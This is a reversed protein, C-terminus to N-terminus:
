EDRLRAIDYPRFSTNGPMRTVQDSIAEAAEATLVWGYSRPLNSYTGPGDVVEYDAAQVREDRTAYKRRAQAETARASHPIESLHIMRLNSM